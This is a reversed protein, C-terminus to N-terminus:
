CRRNKIEQLREAPLDTRLVEAIASARTIGLDRLIDDSLLSLQARENSVEIKLQQVRFWRQLSQFLGNQIDDFNQGIAPTCKKSFTTM